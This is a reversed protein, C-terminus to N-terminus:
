AAARGPSHSRWCHGRINAHDAGFEGWKHGLLFPDLPTFLPEFVPPLQLQRTGPGEFAENEVYAGALSRAM